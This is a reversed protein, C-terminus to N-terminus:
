RAARLGNRRALGVIDDPEGKPKTKPRAALWERCQAVSYRPPSDSVRPFRYRSRTRASIALARDLQPGSVVDAAREISQPAPAIPLVQELFERTAEVVDARKSIGIAAAILVDLTNM